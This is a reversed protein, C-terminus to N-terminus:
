GVVDTNMGARLGGPAAPASRTFAMFARMPQPRHRHRLHGDRVPKNM